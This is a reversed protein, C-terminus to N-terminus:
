GGERVDFRGSLDATAFAVAMVKTLESSDMEGYAALLDDRLAVLSDAKEVKGRLVDVWDKIAPGADQALIDTQSDVSTPDIDGAPGPNDVQATDSTKAPPTNQSLAVLKMFSMMLAAADVNDAGDGPLATKTPMLIPEGKVPVPIKLKQNVYSVPIQSGIGVLNPLSDAYLKLDDPEQTDSVFAPCRDDAFLGNLVAMPYVLQTSLTNDLQSTDDNRIDLRVENHVDGLSRNGHAATSSTLTGGLIAKSIADDSWDMMIKFSDAHGQGSVQQLEIQMSEPIIGAAHHGISLLANMLDMKQQDETGDAYKGIKIPLGYVELFEALDRVSYNKYLYPWALARHLGTRAIYGARSKHFHALWGFPTLPAGYPESYDRLHLTNRDFPPVTFWTPSRHALEVPVWFNQRNKGWALETCSYGHGLADLLDYRIEGIDLSDRILNELTKTNKKEAETADRPPALSWDLQKVAMKRKSLEAGIHTDKEEMDMFLNAQDVLYGQEARIFIDALKAPTLGRSPHLAFERRLNQTTPRDTQNDKPISNPTVLKQFWNYIFNM